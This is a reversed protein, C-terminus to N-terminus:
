TTCPSPRRRAPAQREPRSALHGLRPELPRGLREARQRVVPAQRRHCALGSRGALCRRRRLRSHRAAQGLLGAHRRHLGLRSTGCRGVWWVTRRRLGALRHGSEGFRWGPMLAAMLPVHMAASSNYSKYEAGLVERCDTARQVTFEWPHPHSALIKLLTAHADDPTGAAGKPNMTVVRPLVERWTERLLDVADNVHSALNGQAPAVASRRRLRRVPLVGFPQSGVRLTAVNGGGRVNACFWAKLQGLAARDILRHRAPDDVGALLRDFLEGFSLPWLLRNMVESGEDQRVAAHELRQVLGGRDLGLARALRGSLSHTGPAETPATGPKSPLWQRLERQLLGDLDPKAPSVGTRVEETNNTPAGQCVLELGRTYRHADLLSAIRGGAATANLEHDVGLVLLEDIPRGADLHAKLNPHDSLVVRIAMGAAEAQEFDLMWRAQPDVRLQGAQEDTKLAGEDLWHPDDIDFGLHLPARVKQSWGLIEAKGDCWAKAVWRSPLLRALAPRGREKGDPVGLKVARAAWAARWPGLASALTKWAGSVAQSNKGAATTEAWFREALTREDARLVGIHMDHHLVDPEIRILLAAEIFRTELRVPLLALPVGADLRGWERAFAEPEPM